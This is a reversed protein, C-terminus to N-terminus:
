GVSVPQRCPTTPEDAQLAPPVPGPSNVRPPRSPPRAQAGAGPGPPRPGPQVLPFRREDPSRLSYILVVPGLVTFGEVPVIQPEGKRPWCRLGLNPPAGAVPAPVGAAAALEPDDLRILEYVGLGEHDQGTPISVGVLRGTRVPEDPNVLCHEGAYVPWGQLNTGRVIISFGDPRIVSEGEVPVREFALPAPATDPFRPDGATGWRYVRFLRTEPVPYPPALEANVVGRNRYGTPDTPKRAPPEGVAARDPAPTSMADGEGETGSQSARGPPRAAEPPTDLPERIIALSTGLAAALRALTRERPRPRWGQELESLYGRSIGAAAAVVGQSRDGRLQRLRRGLAILSPQRQRRAVPAGEPRPM